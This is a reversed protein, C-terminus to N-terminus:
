GYVNQLNNSIWDFYTKTMPCYFDHSTLNKHVYYSRARCGGGCIYRHKCECCVEIEDVNISKCYLALEGSLIDSLDNEFVNGMVMVSDHLMHCPYVSGDAGVSVIKCGVECSKRADIGNGIPMDNVSVVGETGIEILQLAIESLQEATPLWKNLAKDKPSCTLLSFSIEVNLEKSLGVYEKMRNYNKTHITPLISTPIGTKKCLKVAKIVGDFIGNDRIYTANLKSYGDISVAIGSIYPKIEELVNATVLTGNTIIQVYPIKVNETAYQVIEKLDDRIFPEGGSIVVLKCGNDALQHLTRKIKDLSPDELCNRNEDLSYCGVCHLNCRQTIHLYASMTHDEETKSGEFFHGEFLANFLELMDKPVLQKEIGDIQIRKCFEYGETTLGILSGNEFNGIVPITNINFLRVDKSFKMKIGKMKKLIDYEILEADNFTIKNYDYNEMKTLIDSNKLNQLANNTM